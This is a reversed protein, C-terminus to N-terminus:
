RRGPLRRMSLARPPQPQSTSSLETVRQQVIKKLEGLDVLVRGLDRVFRQTSEKSGSQLNAMYPAYASGGPLGDHVSANVQAYARVVEPNTIVGAANSEWHRALEGMINVAEQYQFQTQGSEAQRYLPDLRALLQAVVSNLELLARESREERRIRRATDDARSTQWWAAVFGGAITLAGGLLVQLM